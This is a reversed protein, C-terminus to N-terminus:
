DKLVDQQAFIALRMVSFSIIANIASLIVIMLMYHFGFISVTLYMIVNTSLVLSLQLMLFRSGKRLHKNDQDRFVFVKNIFYSYLYAIATGLNISIIYHVSLREVLLWIVAWCLVTTTMGGILFRAAQHHLRHKMYTSIRVKLAVFNNSQKEILGLQRYDRQSSSLSIIPLSNESFDPYRFLM